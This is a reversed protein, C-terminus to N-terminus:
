ESSITWCKRALPSSVIPKHFDIKKKAAILSCRELETFPKPLATKPISPKKESPSMISNSLTPTLARPEMSRRKNYSFTDLDLNILYNTEDVHRDEEECKMIWNIGVCHIKRPENIKELYDNAAKVKELIKTSGSRWIVHTIGISQFGYADDMRILMDASPVSWNWKEKIMAGLETLICKFSLSADNNDMAKIDLYAIVHGLPKSEKILASSNLSSNPISQFLKNADKDMLEYESESDSSSYHSTIPVLIDRCHSPTTIRMNSLKATLVMPQYIYTKDDVHYTNKYSEPTHLAHPDSNDLSYTEQYKFSSENIINTKKNSCLFDELKMDNSTQKKPKVPMSFGEKMNSTKNDIEKKGKNVSKKQLNTQPLYTKLQTKTQPNICSKTKLYNERGDNLDEKGKEKNSNIQFSVKEETSHGASTIMSSRKLRLTTQNKSPSSTVSVIKNQKERKEQKRKECLVDLNGNNKPNKTESTGSSRTTRHRLPRAIRLAPTSLLRKQADCGGREPEENLSMNQFPVRTASRRAPTTLRRPTNSCSSVTSSTRFSTKSPNGTAKLPTKAAKISDEVIEQTQM